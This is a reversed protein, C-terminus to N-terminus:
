YFYLSIIVDDCDYVNMEICLEYLSIYAVNILM